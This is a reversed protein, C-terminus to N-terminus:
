TKRTTRSFMKIRKWNTKTRRWTQLRIKKMGIRSAQFLTATETTIVEHAEVAMGGVEPLPWVLMIHWFFLHWAGEFLLRGRNFAM